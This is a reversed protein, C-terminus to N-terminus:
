PWAICKRTTWCLISAPHKERNARAHLLLLLMRSTCPRLSGHRAVEDKLHPRQVPVLDTMPRKGFTSIDRVWTNIGLVEMTTNLLPGGSNGPNIPTQTQIATYHQGDANIPRVGSIIGAHIDLYLRPPAAPWTRGKSARFRLGCRTSCRDRRAATQSIMAPLEAIQM